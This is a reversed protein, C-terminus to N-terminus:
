ATCTGMSLKPLVLEETFDTYIVKPLGRLTFANWLCDLFWETTEAPYWKAYCVLRSKNDLCCFLKATVRKGDALQVKPGHLADSQWMDNISPARYARRDAQSPEFGKKERSLMNYIASMSIREQPGFVGEKEAKEVLYKIPTEPSEQHRRLLEQQTEVSISRRSGKDARHSPALSDITGQELYTRYWHWVTAPSISTKVSYPIKYEKACIEKVKEGRVGRPLHADLLPFIINFRFLAKEEQKSIAM